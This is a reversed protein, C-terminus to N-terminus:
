KNIGLTSLWVNKSQKWDQKVPEKKEKFDILFDSDKVDDPKKANGRRVEAAIQALYHDDKTRRTEQEKIFILWMRYQSSRTSKKVLDVPM